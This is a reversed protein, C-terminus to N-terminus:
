RACPDISRGAVAAGCGGPRCAGVWGRAASGWRIPSHQDPPGPHIAAMRPAPAQHQSSSSGAAEAHRAKVQRASHWCIREHDAVLRGDCFATVRDLDAIVEIRRGIVAPHVSYDNSDLRVYHNRPPRLSSRWGTVPAVPPLGLTAHRDATIRDTPACTLARRPRANVLALWQQLQADVDDPGTLSRGPLFSRELYDHAREIIGKHEPERPKLV